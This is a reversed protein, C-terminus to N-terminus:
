SVPRATTWGGCAAVERSPDPQHRLLARASALIPEATDAFVPLTNAAATRQKKCAEDDCRNLDYLDRICPMGAAYIFNDSFQSARMYGM